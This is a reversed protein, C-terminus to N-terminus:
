VFLRRRLTGIPHLQNMIWIGVTFTIDSLCFALAQIMKVAKAQILEVVDVPFPQRVIIVLPRMLSCIDPILYKSRIERWCGFTLDLPFLSQASDNRVVIAFSGLGAGAFQM